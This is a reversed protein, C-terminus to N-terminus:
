ILASPEFATRSNAIVIKSEAGGTLALEHLPPSPEDGLGNQLFHSYPSSGDGGRGISLKMFQGQGGTREFAGDGGALAPDARATWVKHERRDRM